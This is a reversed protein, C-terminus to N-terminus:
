NKSESYKLRLFLPQSDLQFGELGLERSWRLELASEVLEHGLNAELRLGVDEAALFLAADVGEDELVDLIDELLLLFADLGEHTEDPLVHAIQGHYRFLELLFLFLLPLSVLHTEQAM